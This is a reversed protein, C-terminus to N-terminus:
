KGDGKIDHTFDWIMVEGKASGCAFLHDSDPHISSGFLNGLDTEQTALKSLTKIDWVHAKGDLGNSVLHGSRNCVISTAASEHAKIDFGSMLKQSGLDVSRIHGDDSSVFLKGPAAPSQAFNELGFGMKIKGAEKPGRADFVRIVNQPGYAYLIAENSADWLLNQIEEGVSKFDTLMKNEQLDWFKMSKDASASVLVNPRSPHLAINTISDKHGHKGGVVAMPEVSDLLDLDWLEIVSNMLGIIAYNAKPYTGAEGKAFDCCLWELAVPFANLIVEHHVYLNFKAEEYIYVELSSGHEEIKAAMLVCDSPRVRYDEEDDDSDEVHLPYEDKYKKATTNTESVFTPM